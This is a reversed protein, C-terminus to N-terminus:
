GEYPVESGNVSPVQSSPNSNCDFGYFGVYSSSHYSCSVVSMPQLRGVGGVGALVPQLDGVSCSEMALQGSSTFVGDFSHWLPAPGFYNEELYPYLIAFSAVVIGVTIAAAILLILARRNSHGVTWDSSASGESVEMHDM